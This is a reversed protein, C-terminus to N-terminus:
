RLPTGPQPMASTIEGAQGTPLRATLLSPSPPVSNNTEVIKSPIWPRDVGSM